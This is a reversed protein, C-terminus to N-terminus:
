GNEKGEKLKHLRKYERVYRFYTDRNLGLKRQLELSGIKKKVVNIYEKEFKEQSMCRPRGYKEWNGNKKLAEIGERQRKQKRELESRSLCDYFEILMHNICEMIMQAMSDTITSFDMYTTPIDLFIVRIKKESFYELEKKTQDSRGLRDFEPIILTDGPRLVDHKLVVYRPRDFNKGTKKDEFVKQLEYGHEKCFQEIKNRGRDLHQEKTSVRNYGYYFGM